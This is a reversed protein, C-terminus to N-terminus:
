TNDRCSECILMGNFRYRLDHNGCEECIGESLTRRARALKIRNLKEMEERIQSFQQMEPYLEPHFNLIDRITVMGVLEGKYIVPLKEFKVQKLKNIAEEVTASPRITAIKKPSIDIARVKLLDERSKTKTLAWLIDYETVIGLLRKKDVILLSGVKKKVMSKACELVNREPKIKIPDRTMVDAVTIHKM